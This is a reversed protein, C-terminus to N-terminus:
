VRSYHLKYCLSFIFFSLLFMTRLLCARWSPFQRIFVHAEDSKKVKNAVNKAINNFYNLTVDKEKTRKIKTSMTNKTELGDDHYTDEDEDEDKDEDM